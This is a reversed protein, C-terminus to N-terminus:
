NENSMKSVHLIFQKDMTIQYPCEDILESAKRSLQLIELLDQAIVLDRINNIAKGKSVQLIFAYGGKQKSNLARFEHESLKYAQPSTFSDIMMKVIAHRYKNWVPTYM